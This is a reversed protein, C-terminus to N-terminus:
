PSTSEREIIDVSLAITRTRPIGSLLDHIVRATEIGILELKNDLCTLAPSCLKCYIVDDTGIVNIDEPIRIGIGTLYKCGGIACITSEFILGDVTRRENIVERVTQAGAELTQAPIDKICAETESGISTMGSVYGVRKKIGSRTRTSRFFVINRRGKKALFQVCKETGGEDDSLIGYTNQFPMQGNAIAIPTRKINQSIFNQIADVTLISGILIIGDVKRQLLLGLYHIAEHEDERTNCLICSYGWQNLQQEITYASEAHHPNRIDPVIVGIIRTSKGILSRAVINPAYELMALADDVKKKTQGNVYPKNNVVRSVTSASVGAQKAVDYITVSM